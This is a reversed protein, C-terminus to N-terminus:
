PGCAAALAAPPLGRERREIMRLLLAEFDRTYGASDFLACRDRLAALRERLVALRQPQRALALAISEYERLDSAILEPLGVAQLLSAAVRSIFTDGPCAVVPVGAWLADSATTHGCVPRTDLVLDALQLRGLHAALPAHSAWVLRQPDLGRRTLERALNRRAQDNSEYLWLVSGEVAGLLRCWVEFVDPMFKYPNNFSCFVFGSEPLACDARSPRAGVPRRRDNPQYCRPMQAIAEDYGDAHALPTVIPDGIVYDYASSGLTGPYGLYNVQIPAPRCALVRNRAGLTYGKLDFLIDIADARVRGALARESLHQADVFHDVAREIRRRAQSGDDLGYSYAYVEFRSRDHHELVESLLYATAHEFFDSSLYGLRIRPAAQDPAPAPPPLPQVGAFLQAAHARAADLQQRRTSPQALMHFPAPQGRGQQILGQLQALDEQWLDWRCALLDQHCMASTLEVANGGLLVGTKFCERAEESRLLREFCNGLQVHAQMFDPRRSMAALYAQSADGFRYLNRLAEGHLFHIRPDKFDRNVRSEILQVTQAYRNAANLCEFVVGLCPESDPALSAAHRAAEAGREVDGAQIRANALNLWYVADGACLAVAREYAAAALAWRGEAALALGREYEARGRGNRARGDHQRPTQAPAPKPRALGHM